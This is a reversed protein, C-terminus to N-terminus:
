KGKKNSLKFIPGKKLRKPTPLPEKRIAKLSGDKNFCDKYVEKLIQSDKKFRRFLKFTVEPYKLSDEYLIFEIDLERLELWGKFECWLDKDSELLEILVDRTFKDKRDM